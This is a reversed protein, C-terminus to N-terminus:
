GDMDLGSAANSEYLALMKDEDTLWESVPIRLLISLILQKQDHNAVGHM